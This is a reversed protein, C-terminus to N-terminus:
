SNETVTGTCLFDEFDWFAIISDNGGTVFFENSPHMEICQCRSKKHVSSLTIEPVAGLTQGNFVSINGQADTVFFAAGSRDWIFSEVEQKYKIMKLQRWMRTDYFKIEEEVNCTAFLNDGGVAQGPSFIGRILEEKTREVHAPTKPKRTDWVRFSRDKSTSAIMYESEPSDFSVTAISSTHGRYEQLSKVTGEADYLRITSDRGGTVLRSGAQNWKVSNTTSETRDGRGLVSINAELKTWHKPLHPQSLGGFISPQM